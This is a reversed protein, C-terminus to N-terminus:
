NQQPTQIYQKNISISAYGLGIFAFGLLVLSIPWGISDAFYESTIFSLHAIVFITSMVLVIRSKLAVSLFLCGLLIIFYLVQWLGSDFVLTFTAGLFGTIGVFQLLGVLGKNWSLRFAHALLLYSLGIIMTLYSFLNSPVEVLNDTVATVVLYIFATGNATAFFTLIARKHVSAVTSYFVFILGFTIAVSWSSDSIAGLETLTVLAGGPILLGGMAHFISGIADQPKQILLASGLAALILGLGLTVGVRGIAGLDGWLQGVFISLGIVVIAAGIIYLMRTVSFHSTKAQTPEISHTVQPSEGLRSFVQDRSIQGTEIRHVLEGLLVENDM